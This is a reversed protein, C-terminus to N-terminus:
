PHGEPLGPIQKWARPYQAGWALLSDSATGPRECLLNRKFSKWGGSSAHYHKDVYRELSELSSISGMDGSEQARHIAQRTQRCWAKEGATSERRTRRATLTDATYFPYLNV